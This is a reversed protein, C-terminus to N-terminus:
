IKCGSRLFKQILSQLNLSTPVFSRLRSDHVTSGHRSFKWKSSFKSIYMGWTSLGILVGMFDLKYFTYSIVVFMDAPLM